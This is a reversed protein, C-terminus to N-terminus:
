GCVGDRDKPRWLDLVQARQRPPPPPTADLMGALPVGLICMIVRCFVLIKAFPMLLLRDCLLERPFPAGESCPSAELEDFSPEDPFFEGARKRGVRTRRPDLKAFKSLNAGLTLLDM